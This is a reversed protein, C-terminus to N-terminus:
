ENVMRHSSEVLAETGRSWRGCDMCQYRQYWKRVTLRRGNKILNQSGCAVCVMGARVLPINAIWPRMKLFVDELVLVDKKCHHYVKKLAPGWGAAAQLWAEFDIPTKENSVKLYEQWVQLRNSHLKFQHKATDYLDVHPKKPLPKQGYKILKSQVMPLDFRKGYWTVHYDCRDFVKAFGTTTKEDGVLGNKAREGLMNVKQEGLWKWGICLIIGFTAKLNTSEIDWILVRPDSSAM